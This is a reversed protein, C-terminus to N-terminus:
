VHYGSFKYRGRKGRGKAQGVVKSRGCQFLSSLRPSLLVLCCYPTYNLVLPVVPFEQAVTWGLVSRGDVVTTEGHHRRSVPSQRRGSKAEPSLTSRLCKLSLASPVSCSKGAEFKRSLHDAITSAATSGKLKSVRQLASINDSGVELSIRESLALNKGSESPGCPATQECRENGISLGLCQEVKISSCCAVVRDRPGRHSTSRARVRWRGQRHVTNHGLEQELISPVLM